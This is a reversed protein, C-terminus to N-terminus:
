IIKWKTQGKKRGKGKLAIKNAKLMTMLTPVSIKLIKAAKINSNNNYIDKLREATLEM